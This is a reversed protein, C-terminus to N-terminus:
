LPLKQSTSGKPSLVHLTERARTVGVYWVRREADPEKEASKATHKGIDPSLIVHDAERGKSRHITSLEIRPAIELTQDGVAKLYEREGGGVDNSIVQQWPGSGVLGFDRRLDDINVYEGDHRANVASKGGHRFGPIGDEPKKWEKKRSWMHLAMGKVHRMAVAEGRNLRLWTRVADQVEPRVERGQGGSFPIGHRVLAKEYHALFSNNRALMLVSGDMRTVREIADDIDGGSSVSGDADRCAIDKDVRIGIESVINQAVAHVARPLRYSVPLTNRTGENKMIISPDAGAYSYICQDDDGALIVDAQQGFHEVVKWQLPSIDQAEDVFLKKPSYPSPDIALSETLLDTFDRKGHKEKYAKVTDRFQIAEEVSFQEDADRVIAELDRLTVRSYEVLSRIRDGKSMAAPDDAKTLFLGLSSGIAFWDFDTLLRVSAGHETVARHCLAHITKFFPFREPPMRFKACARDRAEHAGSRTFTTFMIQEPLMGEALLAEVRGILDTTKGCGAGAFVTHRSIM